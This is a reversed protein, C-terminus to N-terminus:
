AARRPDTVRLGRRDLALVEPDGTVLPGGHSESTAVAFADAYSLRHASKVRAAALILEADPEEATLRRLLADVTQQARAPGGLRAVRYFVEGLNVWSMVPHTEALLTEVQQGGPEDWLMALVAWADLVV